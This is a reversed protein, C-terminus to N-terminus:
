RGGGGVRKWPGGERLAELREREVGAGGSGGADDVFGCGRGVANRVCEVRRGSGAGVELRRERGCIEVELVSLSRM